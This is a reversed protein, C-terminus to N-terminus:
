RPGFGRLSRSGFQAPLECLQLEEEWLLSAIRRNDASAVSLFPPGQTEACLGEAGRALESLDRPWCPWKGASYCWM